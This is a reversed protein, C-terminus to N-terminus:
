SLWRAAAAYGSRSSSTQDALMAAVMERQGTKMAGDALMQLFIDRQANSGGLLRIQERIPWLLDVVRAHDGHRHALAARCVPIVVKTVAPATWLSESAIEQLTALFREAAASRGTAALALMLHPVLLLHGADGIRVEAKEALEQWRNGVPVGLQDLRWLLSTANQLDVYHDPAARTMPENLNRINADYSALVAETEGLDLEMLARHWWLHHILNNGHTWHAVQAALWDRGENVRRDTDFVHAKVHHAFYNTRDSDLAADVAREAGATDGVEEHAFAWVAQFCDHGQVDTGWFPALRDAQELIAATQGHRFWIRDSIQLALLDTPHADLINRWAAFAQDVAGAEWATLAAVHLQERRTALPAMAAAAARSAAVITRHAPIATFLLLYAKLCHGMLFSPDEALSQTVLPVTDAHYKLYHEVAQDFLGVAAASDTTLPLGRVDRQM